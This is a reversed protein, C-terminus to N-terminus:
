DNNNSLYVPLRSRDLYDSKALLAKDPYWVFVVVGDAILGVLKRAAARSVAPCGETRGIRGLLARGPSVNPTGHIVIGRALARDNIGAELGRLRVSLGRVGTYSSGTIFTGVSSQLSGSRNSFSSAWMGPGSGMGHAVHEHMLVQNTGLDVLWLRRKNSPLSYDVITVLMRSTLGESVAKAHATRAHVWADTSMGAPAPPHAEPEAGSRLGMPACAATLALGILAARLTGVPSKRM